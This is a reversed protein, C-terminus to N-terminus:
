AKANSDGELYARLRLRAHMLRTKVTGIPVETAAAVLYAELAKEGRNM